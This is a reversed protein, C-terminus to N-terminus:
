PSVAEGASTWPEVLGEVADAPRDAVAKPRAGQEVARNV